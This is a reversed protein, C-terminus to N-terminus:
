LDAIFSSLFFHSLSPSLIYLIPLVSGQALDESEDNNPRGVQDSDITSLSQASISLHTSLRRKETSMPSGHSKGDLNISPSSVTRGSSVSSNM